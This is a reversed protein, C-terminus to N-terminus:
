ALFKGFIPVTLVPPCNFNPVGEFTQDHTETQRDVAIEVILKVFFIPSGGGGGKIIFKPSVDRFIYFTMM